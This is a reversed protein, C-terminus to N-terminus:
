RFADFGLAAALEGLTEHHSSAIDIRGLGVASFFHQGAFRNHDANQAVLFEAFEVARDFEGFATLGFVYSIAQEAPFLHRRPWISEILSLGSQADGLKGLATLYAVAAKLDNPRKRYISQLRWSLRAIRDQESNPTTQLENFLEVFEELPQGTAM